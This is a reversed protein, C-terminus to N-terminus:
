GVSRGGDLVIVQGNLRDPSDLLLWVGVEAADQPNAPREQPSAVELGDEVEGSTVCLLHARIGHVAYEHAVNMTLGLLAHQMASASSAGAGGRRALPSALTLVRGSGQHMMVPLVHKLILFAARVGAAVARDFDAPSLDVFCRRELRLPRADIVADIRGWRELTNRVLTEADSTESADTLHAVAPPTFDSATRAVADKLADADNDACVVRVGRTALRAAIM